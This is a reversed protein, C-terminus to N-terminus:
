FANSLAVCLGFEAVLLVTGWGSLGAIFKKAVKKFAKKLVKGKIKKGQLADRLAGLSDLGLAAIACGGITNWNQAHVTQAGLLSSMLNLESNMAIGEAEAEVSLVANVFPIMISEDAGDLAEIIDAETLDRSLLFNRAATIAPDLAEQTPEIPIDFCMSFGFETSTGDIPENTEDDVVVPREGSQNGANIVDGLTNVSTPDIVGTNSPEDDQNLLLCMKFTTIENNNEEAIGNIKISGKTSSPNIVIENLRANSEHLAALFNDKAEDEQKYDTSDTQCAQFIFVIAVLSLKILFIALMGKGVRQTVNSM